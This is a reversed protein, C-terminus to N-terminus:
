STAETFLINYHGPHLGALISVLELWFEVLIFGFLTTRLKNINKRTTCMSLNTTLCNTVRWNGDCYKMISKYINTWFIWFIFRM